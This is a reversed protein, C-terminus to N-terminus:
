PLVKVEIGKRSDLRVTHDAERVLDFMRAGTYFIEGSAAVTTTWTGCASVNTPKNNVTVFACLVSSGLNLYAIEGAKHFGAAWTGTKATFTVDSQIVDVRSPNSSTWLIGTYGSPPNTVAASDHGFSGQVGTGNPPILTITTVNSICSVVTFLKQITAGGPATAIIHATGAGVSTVLGTTSNVTVVSTNDSTYTTGVITSTMGATHTGACSAEALVSDSAAIQFIPPPTTSVCGASTVNITVNATAQPTAVTTLTLVGQGVGVINIVGTPSVNFVSNNNGSFMVAQSTGAPGVNWGSYTFPPTTGSFGNGCATASITPSQVSITIPTNTPNNCSTPNSVIVTTTSSKTSNVLSTATITTSGVGHATVTGSQDVSAIGPASSTWSFMNAPLTITGASVTTVTVTVRSQQNVCLAGTQLLVPNPSLTVSMITSDLPTSGAPGTPGNNTVNLISTSDTRTSCAAVLVSAALLGFRVSRPILM